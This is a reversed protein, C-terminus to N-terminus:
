AGAVRPKKTPGGPLSTASPKKSFFDSIRKVTRHPQSLRTSADGSLVAYPPGPVAHLRLSVAVHDSLQQATYVIGSCPAERFQARYEDEHLEAMGIKDDLGVPAMLGGLVAAAKAAEASGPACNIRTGGTYLELGCHAHKSFFERDALVYDIRSGVNDHRLFKSQDWCTFRESAYRHFEAFSDVMGDVTLLTTLWEQVPPETPNEGIADAILKMTSRQVEFGVLKQLCEVLEHILIKSSPQIVLASEHKDLGTLISGDDDCGIGSLVFKTRAQAENDFRPGLRANSGDKTTAFVAWQEAKGGTTKSDLLRIEKEGLSTHIEPWHEAIGAAAKRAIPDAYEAQSYKTLSSQSILRGTWHVDTARHKMNLDGAIVVAKGKARERLMAARLAHLWRMKFRLRVGNQSNPVYVNFLVFAGHDTLLCRGESDLEPEGLPAPDARV